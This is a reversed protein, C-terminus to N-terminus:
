RVMVWWILLGSLVLVRGAMEPHSSCDSLPTAAGRARSGTLGIKAIRTDAALAGIVDDPWIV